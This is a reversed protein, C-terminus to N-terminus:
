KGSMTSYHCPLIRPILEIVGHIKTTEIQNSVAKYPILKLLLM